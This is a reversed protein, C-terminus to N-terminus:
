TTILFQLFEKIKPWKRRSVPHIGKNSLTIERKRSNINKVHAMNIIKHHNIRLFGFSSLRKEISLLSNTYSVPTNDNTTFVKVVNGDCEFWLIEHYILFSTQEKERICFVMEKQQSFNFNM